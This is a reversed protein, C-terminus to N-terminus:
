VPLKFIYESITLLHVKCFIHLRNDVYVFTLLLQLHLNFSVLKSFVLTKSVWEGWVYDINTFVCKNNYSIM